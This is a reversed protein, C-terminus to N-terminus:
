STENIRNDCLYKLKDLEYSIEYRKFRKLYNQNDTITISERKWFEEKKTYSNGKRIMDYRHFIWIHLIDLCERTNFGILIYYDPINNHEVQFGWCPSRGVRYYLCHAELQIKYEHNRALKFQPYKDIFEQRPNKCTFDFGPNGYDMIEVHEFITLLYEKFIGEGIFVGLFSSSNKSESMPESNNKWNRERLYERMYEINKKYIYKAYEGTTDFGANKATKISNEQHINVYNKLIGNKYAWKAFERVNSGFGHEKTKEKLWGFTVDNKNKDPDNYRSNKDTNHQRRYDQRNKYGKEKYYMDRIEVPDPMKGNEKRWKFWDSLNDFGDKKALEEYHGVTRKNKKLNKYENKCLNRNKDRDYRNKFGTKQACKDLYEKETKCGSNLWKNQTNYRNQRAWESFEKGFNNELNKYFTDDKKWNRIWSVFKNGNEFGLKRIDEQREKNCPHMYGFPGPNKKIKEKIGAIADKRITDVNEAM